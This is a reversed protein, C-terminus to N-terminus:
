RNQTDMNELHSSSDVNKELEPAGRYEINSANLATVTLKETAYISAYSGNTAKIDATKIEAQWSDLRSSNTLALSVSPVTGRLYIRSSDEVTGVLSQTKIDLSASSGNDLSISVSPSVIDGNIHASDKLEVSSLRPTTIIIEVYEGGCILCSTSKETDTEELTLTDNELTYVIQALDQPRAKFEISYVDGEKVEVSQNDTIVLKSFPSLEKTVAERKYYPDNNLIEAVRVGINTGAAGAVPIAIFWVGLLSVIAARSLITRKTMMYGGLSVIFVLPILMALYLSIALTQFSTTHALDLIPGEIISPSIHFLSFILAATAGVALGFAILSVFAGVAIRIIPFFTNGAFRLVSRVTGLIGELFNIFANKHGPTNVEEIKEKVMDALASITAPSGKMSLKQSPSKAEQVLVWLLIYVIVGTGGLFISAIFILRIITTNIGFFYGLGSAVGAVIANDPDRYLKKSVTESPQPEANDMFQDTTGMAEIVEDIDELTITGTKKESFKEAIRGEIDELIEKGNADDNFHARLETIYSDLKQYADEEVYFLSGGISISFTKKM